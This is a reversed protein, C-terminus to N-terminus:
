LERPRDPFRCPASRLLRLDLLRARAHQFEEGARVARRLGRYPEPRFGSLVHFLSRAILAYLVFAGLWAAGLARRRRARARGLRAAHAAASRHPGLASGRLGGAVHALLRLTWEPN